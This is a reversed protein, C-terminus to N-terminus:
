EELRFGEVQIEALTYETNDDAITLNAIPYDSSDAKNRFADDIAIIERGDEPDPHAEFKTYNESTSNPHVLNFFKVLYAAKEIDHQEQQEATPAPIIFWKTEGSM